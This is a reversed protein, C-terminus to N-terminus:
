TTKKKTRLLLIGNPQAFLLNEFALLLQFLAPECWPHWITVFDDNAQDCYRFGSFCVFIFTVNKEYNKKRHLFFNTLASFKTGLLFYGAEEAGRRTETRKRLRRNQYGRFLRAAFLLLSRFAGSKEGAAARVCGRELVLTEGVLNLFSRVLDKKIRTKAVWCKLNM